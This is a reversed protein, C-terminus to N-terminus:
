KKKKFMNRLPDFDDDAPKWKEKKWDPKLRRELPKLGKDGKVNYENNQFRELNDGAGYLRNSTEM